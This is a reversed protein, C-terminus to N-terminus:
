SLNEDGATCWNHPAGASFTHLEYSAAWGGKRSHKTAAQLGREPICLPVGMHHENETIWTLTKLTLKSWKLSKTNLDV